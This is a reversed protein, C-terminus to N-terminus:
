GQQWQARSGKESKRVTLRTEVQAKLESVHSIIGVMRKGGSLENLIAIAQNRTEESLSGFGEDIFMTDIHVSGRSEQIMDAMGLAMSLAAIFSEGGSLTKVDRMQDNVVSYVDLDLGVAGQTSLDKVDRCRLLFQSGSMPYLRRNARDIIQKFYRRQIYTQFNMHRKSLKGSATEELHSLVASQSRWQSRARYLQDAQKKARENVELMSYLDREQKTLTEQEEQCRSLESEYSATDLKVKGSTEKALREVDNVALALNTQYESIEAELADITPQSICKQLYEDEGAFRQETMQRVFEAEAEKVRKEESAVNQKAQSLQGSKEMYTQQLAQFAQGCDNKQQELADLAKELREQERQAQEKTEYPLKQSRQALAAELGAQGRQLEGVRERLEEAQESRARNELLLKQRRDRLRKEEEIASLVIDQEGTEPPKVCDTKQERSEPMVQCNTEQGMSEPMVLCDAKQGMGEPMVQCNTEQGMGEPMAQCGAKKEKSEPMVLCDAKQERSEPMVQCNTEQGMSEPMVQCGVKKEKSEPMVLCDTKQERSEPMGSALAGKTTVGQTEAAEPEGGPAYVHHLAGCVPCPEGEKLGQRLLDVQEKIFIQERLETLKEGLRREEEEGDALQEKLRKLRKQARALEGNLKEQREREQKLADYEPLSERLRGRQAILQPAKADYEARAQEASRQLQSLGGSNEDMWAQLQQAKKQQEHFREKSERLNHYAGQVFLARKGESLRKEKRGVEPEREKCLSLREKALEYETLKQNVAAAARIKEALLEKEKRVLALKEGARGMADKTERCIDAALALLADGDSESFKEDYGLWRELLRSEPILRVQELERTIQDKNKALAMNLEKARNRLEEEIKGYLATDFLRAFIERREQSSAHLLKIFEGQALMAIQTFQGVNLGIIQEIKEDIERKKGPYCSGDPMILEVKPPLPRKLEEYEERGDVTKKKWNPQEPSRTVQYVQGDYSFRFTVQTKDGPPAYQSLMMRGDRAGGSTKDYLAYVMADFITTKGAGTDGTILFLGGGIGSFDITEHRYSGFARMEISIPRM